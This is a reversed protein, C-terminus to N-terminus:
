DRRSDCLYSQNLAILSDSFLTLLDWNLHFSCYYALIFYRGLPDLVSSSLFLFPYYLFCISGSLRGLEISMSLGEDEWGTLQLAWSRCCTLISDTYLVTYLAHSILPLWCSHVGSVSSVYSLPVGRLEWSDRLLSQGEMCCPISAYCKSKSRFSCSSRM